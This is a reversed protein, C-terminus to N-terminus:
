HRAMVEEGEKTCTLTMCLAVAIHVISTHGKACHSQTMARLSWRTRYTMLVAGSAKAFSHLLSLAYHLTRCKISDIDVPKQSWCTAPTCAVWHNQTSIVAAYEVRAQGLFVGNSCM